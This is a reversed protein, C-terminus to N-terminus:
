ELPLLVIRFAPASSDCRKGGEDSIFVAHQDTFFLGEPRIDGGPLEMRRPSDSPKGKWRYLAFNGSDDASGAVIWYEQSRPNWEMSRIGLGGLNLRVVDGLRAPKGQVVEWPNLLAVAYAGANSLPNRLGIWLFGGPAAALAEINLAGPNEPPLQSAKQLNASQLAPHRSLDQVLNRYVSGQPAFKSDLAFLVHRTPRPKGNRNAGHSGIWFYSSGWATAGELDAESKKGRGALFADLELSELAEGPSSLSFIRLRNDEDNAVLFRDAGLWLAASADCLGTYRLVKGEAGSIGHLALVLLSSLGLLNQFTM